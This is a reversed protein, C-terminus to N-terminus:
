GKLLYTYGQNDQFQAFTGWAMTKPEDLFEVGNAKMKSYTAQIDDCVFVISPKMEDAGPMMAKPYLVLCTQADAPGVEIWSASPGMPHNQRVIFGAKETWFRLAEQQDDVYVAATAINTIM